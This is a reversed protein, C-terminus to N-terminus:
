VRVAKFEEIPRVNFAALQPEDVLCDLAAIRSSLSRRPCRPQSMGSVSVRLCHHLIVRWKLPLSEYSPANTRRARTVGTPYRRSLPNSRAVNCMITLIFLVPR